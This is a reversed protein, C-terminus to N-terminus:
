LQNTLYKHKRTYIAIREKFEGESKLVEQLSHIRRGYILHSLTLVEESPNDDDYTLSKLFLTGEATALFTLMEDFSLTANGIVNKSCQKVSKM